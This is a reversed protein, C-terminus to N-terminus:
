LKGRVINIAQIELYKKIDNKVFDEESESSNISSSSFKHDKSISIVKKDMIVEKDKSYLSIAITGTITFENETASSTVSATQKEFKPGDIIVIYSYNNNDITFGSNIFSQIQSRSSKISISATKSTDGSIVELDGLKYGCGQFLIGIFFVASVLKLKLYNM